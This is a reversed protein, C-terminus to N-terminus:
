LLKALIRQMVEISGGTLAAARADRLTRSLTTNEMYGHAGLLHLCEDTVQRILRGAKLKVMATEKTCERGSMLLGASHYTMQRLLELDTEMDVLRFAVSQHDILRSGFVTRQRAHARTKELVTRAQSCALIAEILRERQFQEMQIDWGMGPAGLVNERPVVVDEYTLEAHDCCLNGLKSDEYRRRATLGPTGAPVLVLSMGRTGGDNSTRCLTVVFDAISGNTIYSKKGSIVLEDGEARAVTTIASVESGAHPETIALAGIAEGRVAPSLFREKLAPSGYKELVPTSIETQVTLSMPIGGAETRGLEEIWIVSYWLDLDSGGYEEPFALGLYGEGGLKRYLERAPFAREAEWQEVFPNIERDVFARLSARFLLHERNFCEM